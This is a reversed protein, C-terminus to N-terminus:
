EVRVIQGNEVRIEIRFDGGDHDEFRVRIRDPREDEVEHDFGAAPTVGSLTLAAGDWRM